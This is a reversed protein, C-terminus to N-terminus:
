KASIPPAPNLKKKYLYVEAAGWTFVETQRSQLEWDRGNMLRSVSIVVAHQPIQTALKKQLKRWTKDELCLGTLFYIDAAPINDRCFDLEQFGIQETLGLFRVAKQGRCIYEAVIDIGLAPAQFALAAIIPVIGRGCGLDIVKTRNSASALKLLRYATGPLTEGYTLGGCDDPLSGQQLLQPSNKRLFRLVALNPSSGLWSLMLSFRTKYWWSLRGYLIFEKLTQKFIWFMNELAIWVLKM